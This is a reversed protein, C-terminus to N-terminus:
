ASGYAARRLMVVESADPVLRFGTCLRCHGGRFRLVRREIRRGRGIRSSRALGQVITMAVGETSGARGSERHTIRLLLIWEDGLCRTLVGMLLLLVIRLGVLASRWM